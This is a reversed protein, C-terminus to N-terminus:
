RQRGEASPDSAWVVTRLPGGGYSGISLVGLTPTYQPGKALRVTHHAITAHAQGSGIAAFGHHKVSATAGTDGLEWVDLVGGVCGVMLVSTLDQSELKVRALEARERRQGNLRGLERIAADAFAHWSTDSSLAYSQVWRDFEMGIGEDGAFGWALPRDGLSCMKQGVQRVGATDTILSDAGILLHDGCDLAAILTM